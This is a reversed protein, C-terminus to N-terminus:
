RYLFGFILATQSNKLFPTSKIRRNHIIIFIERSVRIPEGGLNSSSSHFHTFFIIFNNQGIGATQISGNDNGPQLFVVAALDDSDGSVYPLLAFQFPELFFGNFGARGLQINLVQFLFKYLVADPGGQLGPSNVFIFVKQAGGKGAGDDALAQHVDGLLLARVGNGM